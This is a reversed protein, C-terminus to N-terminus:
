ENNLLHVVISSARKRADYVSMQDNNVKTTIQALEIHYASRSSFPPITVYDTIHTGIQTSEVYGLILEEVIAANLYACLYKAEEEEEIPIFYIKHDPIVCKGDMESIICTQFGRSIEAWCVKYPSFTYKGVNWCAYFPDNPLYRKLSSRKLLSQKNNAFYQLAKPYKNLMMDEPFGHM